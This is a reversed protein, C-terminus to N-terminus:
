SIALGWAVVVAALLADDDPNAGVASVWDRLTTVDLEQPEADPHAERLREALEDATV